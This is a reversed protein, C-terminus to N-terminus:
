SMWPPPVRGVAACARSPLALFDKETSVLLQALARDVGAQGSCPCNNKVLLCALPLPGRRHNSDRQQGPSRPWSLSKQHPFGTRHRDSVDRGQSLHRDARHRLREVPPALQPGLRTLADLGGSLLEAEPRVRQGLPQPRAAAVVTPNIVVSLKPRNVMGTM